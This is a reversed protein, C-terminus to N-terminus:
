KAVAVQGATAPDLSQRAEIRLSRVFNNVAVREMVEVRNGSLAQSMAAVEADVQRVIEAAAGPSVGRARLEFLENLRARSFDFEASQLATPWNIVGEPSIQSPSLRKPDGLRTIERQREPSLPPNQALERAKYEDRIQWNTRVSLAWNGIGAQRAAEWDIAAAARSRDYDGAARILDAGGHAWGEDVTGSHAQWDGAYAYGGPQAVSVPTLSVSANYGTATQSVQRVTPLSQASVVATSFAISAAALFLAVSKM